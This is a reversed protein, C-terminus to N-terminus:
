YSSFRACGFTRAPFLTNSNFTLQEHNLQFREASPICAFSVDRVGGAQKFRRICLALDTKKDTRQPTSKAIDICVTVVYLNEHKKLVDELKTGQGYKKKWFEVCKHKHEMFDIFTKEATESTTPVLGTTVDDGHVPYMETVPQPPGACYKDFAEKLRWMARDLAAKTRIRLRSDRLKKM